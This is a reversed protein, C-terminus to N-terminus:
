ILLRQDMDPLYAALQFREEEILCTNWTELSLIDRLDPLDYLEYPINCMQGEVMGLECDFKALGYEDSDDGSDAGLIPIHVTEKAKVM